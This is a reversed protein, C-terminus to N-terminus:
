ELELGQPVHKSSATDSIRGRVPRAYGDRRSLDDCRKWVEIVRDQSPKPKSPPSGM